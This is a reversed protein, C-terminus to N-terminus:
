YNSVLLRTKRTPRTGLGLFVLSPHLAKFAAEALVKHGEVSSHWGDVSNILELRSFDVRTLADSYELHVHNTDNLQRKLGAVMTRMEANMMLALRAMNKRYPPKLSEFSRPGSNLHPYLKPNQAHLAEEKRRAQLYADINALGFILIAVRHNEM